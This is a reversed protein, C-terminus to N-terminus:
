REEEEMLALLSAADDLDVGAQLGRGGFSPLPPRQVETREQRRVLLERLAEELLATFTKGEEAALRKIRRFLSNELRVTTRMIGFRVPNADIHRDSIPRAEAIM